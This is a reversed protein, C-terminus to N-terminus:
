QAVNQSMVTVPRPYTPSDTADTIKHRDTRATLPFRSSSDVGFKTCMREASTLLDLDHPRCPVARRYSQVHPENILSHRHTQVNPLPAGPPPPVRTRNHSSLRPAPGREDRRSRPDVPGLRSEVSCGAVDQVHPTTVVAEAGLDVASM